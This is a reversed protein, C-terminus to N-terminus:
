PSSLKKIQAAATKRLAPTQHDIIPLTLVRQYQGIAMQPQNMAEYTRALEFQAYVNGPNLSIAKKLATESDELTGPPLGGMVHHAFSRLVWNLTAIERYYIGLAAYPPSYGPDLAISKQADAHLTRSLEVKRKGGRFFALNGRSMALLFFTEANTPALIRLKEATEVAKEYYPESKASDLDEGANNYAWTLKILLAPDKDKLQVAQEYLPVAQIDQFRAHFDDAKRVLEEATEAQLALGPGLLMTIM